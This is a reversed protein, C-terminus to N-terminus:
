CDQIASCVLRPFFRNWSEPHKMCMSAKLRAWCRENWGQEVETEQEENQLDSPVHWITKDWFPHYGLLAIRILFSFFVKPGQACGNLLRMAPWLPSGRHTMLNDRSNAQPQPWLVGLRWATEPRSAELSHRSGTRSWFDDRGEDLKGFEAPQIRTCSQFSTREMSVLFQPEPTYWYIQSGFVSHVKFGPIHQLHLNSYKLPLAHRLWLCPNLCLASAGTLHCLLYLSYAIGTLSKTVSEPRLSFFFVLWADRCWTFLRPDEMFLWKLHVDM